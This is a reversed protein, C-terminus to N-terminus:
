GIWSGTEYLRGQCRTLLGIGCLRLCTAMELQESPPNPLGSEFGLPSKASPLHTSDRGNLGGGALHTKVIDDKDWDTGDDLNTSQTWAALAASSGRNATLVRPLHGETRYSMGSERSPVTTPREDPDHELSVSGNVEASTGHETLNGKKRQARRTNVRV